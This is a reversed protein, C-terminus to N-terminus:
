TFFNFMNFSDNVWFNFNYNDEDKHTRIIDEWM